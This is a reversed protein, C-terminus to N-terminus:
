GTCTLKKKTNKQDIKRMLGIESVNKIPDAGILIQWCYIWPRRQWFKFKNYFVNILGCWYGSILRILLEVVIRKIEMKDFVALDIVISTNTNLSSMILQTEQINRSAIFQQSLKRITVPRLLSNNLKTLRKRVIGLGYSDTVFYVVGNLVCYAETNLCHYILGYWQSYYDSTIYSTM